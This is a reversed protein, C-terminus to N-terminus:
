ASNALTTFYLFKGLNEILYRGQTKNFNSKQVNIYINISFMEKKKKEQYKELATAHLSPKVTLMCDLLHWEMQRLGASM